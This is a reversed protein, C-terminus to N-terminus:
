NRKLFEIRNLDPDLISFTIGFPYETLEEYFTINKIKLQQYIQNINEVSLIITQSGPKERDEVAHKVGLRVLNHFIFSAYSSGHQYELELCLVHKYFEVTKKFSYSYFVVSDLIM